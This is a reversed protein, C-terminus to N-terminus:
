RRLELLAQIERLLKNQEKLLKNTEAVEHKTKAQQIFTAVDMQNCRRKTAIGGFSTKTQHPQKGSRKALAHPCDPEGTRQQNNRGARKAGTGM